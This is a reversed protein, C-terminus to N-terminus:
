LHNVSRTVNCLSLWKLTASFIALDEMKVGLISYKLLKLTMHYISDLM